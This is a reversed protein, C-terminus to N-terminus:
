QLRIGQIVIGEMHERAAVTRSNAVFLCRRPCLSGSRGTTLSLEARSGLVVFAPAAWEQLPRVVSQPFSSDYRHPLVVM